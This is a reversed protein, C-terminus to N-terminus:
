IDYLSVGIHHKSASSPQLDFVSILQRTFERIPASFLDGQLLELEVEHLNTHQGNGSIIGTDTVLELITNGINLKRKRRQMIVEVRPLLPTAAPMKTRLADAIAGAPICAVQKFSSTIAQEIEECSSYGNKITSNRKLTSVHREGEFRTRLSWRLTRLAWDPTDYYTAAFRQPAYGKGPAVQRVMDSDILQELTAEDPATLKIEQEIHHKSSM